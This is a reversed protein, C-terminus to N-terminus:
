DINGSGLFQQFKEHSNAWMGGNGGSSASGGGHEAGFFGPLIAVSVTKTKETKGRTAGRSM